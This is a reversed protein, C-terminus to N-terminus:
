PKTVQAVTYHFLAIGSMKTRYEFQVEYITLLIQGYIVNDYIIKLGKLFSAEAQM